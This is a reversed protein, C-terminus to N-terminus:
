RRKPALLTPDREVIVLTGPTFLTACTFGPWEAVAYSGIIEPYRPANSADLWILAGSGQLCAVYGGSFYAQGSPSFIDVAHRINLPILAEIGVNAYGTLAAGFYYVFDGYEVLTRCFLDFEPRVSARMLDGTTTGRLDCDPANPPTPYAFTPSPVPTDQFFVIGETPTPTLTFAPDVTSTPTPTDTIFPNPTTSPTLTLTPTISPDLTATPSPLPTESPTLTLTPTISPDLTETATPTLSPTVTLTATPTDSPVPTLTASPTATFVPTNPVNILGADMTTTSIVNSALTFVDSFSADAGGSNIDSDLTDDGGALNKWTFTAGAPLIVRIRYSGPVPAIVTYIGSSNTTASDILQTKASNWLEVTIGNLGPEGADQRGDLDLDNWVFNGIHIPTPTRTPTATRFLVIGADLSTISIVNSALTFADTFGLNPGFPNIDSDALDGAVANDKLTFNDGLNPLVVRVRYDGPLPAVLTYNGNSNTTTQAILTTKATNWLQVTVGALGPEGVDQRGDQDLDDWVFNGINIPTPTRTPTATRFKIVGADISTISIVNSAINIIDTFGIDGGTPNIDSDALDGAAANDKPSFSDLLGPLVVRVRFNGPGASQLTYNGSANTVDQDLLVTKTSNWLQVTVGALGPEGTDQRGDQDLDDWVFNGINVPTPTRTPTPTRFLIIGADVNSISIVNSAISIIDTFGLNTGTPNIDSDAIDGAAANDKPSFADGAGPLVVRVRYSGPVPAVVTYNGSSGTVDTDILTTKQSNWLQVTIGSLGPEGSDQRGDQDLDDWVFNGINIPTPTRTASPLIIVQNPAFEAPGASATQIAAASWNLAILTICAFVIVLAGASFLYSPKRKM